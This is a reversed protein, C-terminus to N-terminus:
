KVVRMLKFALALSSAISAVTILKLTWDQDQERKRMSEFILKKRVKTLDVFGFRVDGLPPTENKLIMYSRGTSQFIYGGLGGSPFVDPNQDITEVIIKTLQKVRLGKLETAEQNKEISTLANSFNCNGNVCAYSLKIHADNVEKAIVSKEKPFVFSSDIMKMLEAKTIKVTGKESGSLHVDVM